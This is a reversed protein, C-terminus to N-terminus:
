ISFSVQFTFLYISHLDEDNKSYFVETCLDLIRYSNNEEYRFLFEINTRDSLEELLNLFFMFLGSFPELKQLLRQESFVTYATGHHIKFHTYINRFSNSIDLTVSYFEMYEESSKNMIVDQSFRSLRSWINHYVDTFSNMIEQCLYKFDSM